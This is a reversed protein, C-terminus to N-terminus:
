QQFFMIEIYLVHLIHIIYIQFDETPMKPCKIFNVCMVIGVPLSFELFFLSFPSQQYFAHQLRGENLKLQM